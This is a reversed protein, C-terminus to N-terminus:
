QAWILTMVVSFIGTLAVMSYVTTRVFTQFMAHMRDELRDFRAAVAMFDAKMEARLGVIDDKLLGIDSKTALQGADVPPLSSM